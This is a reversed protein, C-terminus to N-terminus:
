LTLQFADTFKKVILAIVWVVELEKLVLDIALGVHGGLFLDILPQSRLTIDLRALPAASSLFIIM